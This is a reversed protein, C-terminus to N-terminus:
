AAGGTGNSSGVALLEDGGEDPADAAAAQELAHEKLARDLAIM